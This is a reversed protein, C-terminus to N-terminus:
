PPELSETLPLIWDWHALGPPVEVLNQDPDILQQERRGNLSTMVTARVEVDLGRERRFRDHLHHAYQLIMDPRDSMKRYQWATLEHRPDVLWLERSAPDTVLFRARSNKTRLKMHWSFRHGEETWHVTGPYLFHRLPVLVQVALYVVLFALVPGRRSAPASALRPRGSALLRVPWDPAFFITTAVIMAWPFIGIGFTMANTLHFALTVVFTPVRTRPWALLPWALLDLFLGGYSFLWATFEMEFIPGLYDRDSRKPLWMKLPQARLWDGNLKAVGAYFYVLGVQARMLEVSWRPVKRDRGRLWSDLSWGAHAPVVTWLFGLLIVLYFHNLYRGKELLFVYSFGLFFMVAATRYALGLALLAAAGGLILFHADLLFGPWPRVWDFLYYTFHFSPGRYYEEVWGEVFFRWVEWVLVVGFGIRFFALSAPSVEAFLRDTRRM